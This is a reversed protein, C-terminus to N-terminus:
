YHTYCTHADAWAKVNAKGNAWSFGAGTTDSYAWGMTGAYGADFFDTILTGYTIGGFSLGTTDASPNFPFEGVVVPKDDV